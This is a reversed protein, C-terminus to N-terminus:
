RARRLPHVKLRINELAAAGHNDNRRFKLCDLVRYRGPQTKIRRAVRKYSAQMTKPSGSAWTGELIVSASSFADVWAIDHDRCELVVEYRQYDIMDQRLRTIQRACRGRRRAVGIGLCETLARKTSDALWQPLPRSHERCVQIGDLLAGLNGDDFARRCHDIEWEFRQDPTMAAWPLTKHEPEGPRRWTKRRGREAIKRAIKEESM